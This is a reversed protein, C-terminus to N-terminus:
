SIIQKQGDIQKSSGKSLRELIAEKFLRLLSLIIMKRKNTIVGTVPLIIKNIDLKKKFGTNCDNCIHQLTMVSPIDKETEFVLYINESKCTFCKDFGAEELIEKNELQEAIRQLEEQDVIQEQM